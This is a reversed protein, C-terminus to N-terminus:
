GTTSHSAVREAPGSAPITAPSRLTSIPWDPMPLDVIRFASQGCARARMPSTDSANPLPRCVVVSVASKMSGPSAPPQITSEGPMFTNPM